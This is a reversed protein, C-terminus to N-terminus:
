RSLLWKQTNAIAFEIAQEDTAGSLKSYIFSAAFNDGAGLPNINDLPKVPFCKVDLSEASWLEVETPSHGIFTAGHQCYAEKSVQFEDSSLFVYKAGHPLIGYAGKCWDVSVIGSYNEYAKLRPLKNQYCIHMWKAPAIKPDRSIKNIEAHVEKSSNERDIFITAEGVAAPECKSTLKGKSLHSFARQVNHIGGWQTYSNQFVPDYITDKVSHGVILLDLM